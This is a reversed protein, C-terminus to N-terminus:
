FKLISGTVVQSPLKSLRSWLKKIFLAVVFLLNIAKFSRFWCLRGPSLPSKPWLLVSSFQDLISTRDCAIPKNIRHNYSHIQWSFPLPYERERVDKVSNVTKGHGLLLRCYCAKGMLRGKFVPGYYVALFFMKRELVIYVICESTLSFFVCMM